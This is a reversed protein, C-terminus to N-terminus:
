NCELNDDDDVMGVVMFLSFLTSRIDNLHFLSGSLRITILIFNNLLRLSQVLDFISGMGGM